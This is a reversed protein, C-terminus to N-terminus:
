LTFDRLGYGLHSALVIMTMLGPMSKGSEIAEVYSEPMGIRDALDKTSWGKAIRLETLRRRVHALERDAKRLVPDRKLNVIEATM